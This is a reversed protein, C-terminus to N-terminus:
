TTLGALQDKLLGVTSTAPFGVGLTEVEWPGNWKHTGCRSLRGPKCTGQGWSGARTGTM